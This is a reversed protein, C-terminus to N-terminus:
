KLVEIGPLTGKEIFELLAGGGTSVHDITKLYKKHKLAALTNGGGIISLSKRNQAIAKYVEQTGKSFRKQEYLGMPGVWIITQAKKIIQSFLKRTKRGIDLPQGSAKVLDLPLVLATNSQSAKVFLEKILNEAEGNLFMRGGREGRGGACVEKVKLFANAIKGGILCFDAKNVLKAIMPLKDELKAGGVVAVLPKQPNEIAQNIFKIEKELLLGAASPLFRPVGVISAHERHSVGFADNVFVDALQALQRALKVTNKKEGPYFRINELLVVDGPKFERLKEGGKKSTYDQDFFYVKKGLLKALSAAVPKLSYHKDKRGQPRGLHSLLYIVCRQSFLYNLTPLSQRLRFDDAVQFQKNLTVNFDVRLLVRKGALNLDKLTKLM